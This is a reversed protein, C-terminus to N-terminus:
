GAADQQIALSDTVFSVLSEVISAPVREEGLLVIESMPLPPLNASAPLIKLGAPIFSKGLVTVGLGNKVALQVGSLTSSTCTVVGSRRAAELTQFIVNRYRCPPPLVVLPIPEDLSMFFEEAAIWCLPERWIIRGTQVRRDRKAIALDLQGEDFAALLETSCGTRLELITGPHAQGLRTILGPLQHPIFDDTVGLRVKGTIPGTFQQLAADNFELIQRALGVLREGDSTLTLSRNSREFVSCGLIEELRFIKQSVASQSRGVIGAAATFSGSEVAAMFSRLLDIELDRRLM